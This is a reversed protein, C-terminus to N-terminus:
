SSRAGTATPGLRHAMAAAEGRSTVGLKGLINSVHVSATKRSIYLEEAIQPNSRGDALLQLVELERPTLGLADIGTAAPDVAPAGTDIQLRARRGLAHIEALLPEAGLATALRAAEQATGSASERDAGACAVEAQRLLAYAILYPDDATRCADLAETWSADRGGARAAEAAALARYALAPTTQAPLEHSIATLAAMRDPAPEPAEAELRLGLWVLQWRYRAVPEPADLPPRIEERAAAVDGLARAMEAGAFARPFAYQDSHPDPLLRRATELDARADHYRGTLAALRARQGLVLSAFLNALENDLTNSLLRHADDWQGVHFQADAYNLATLAGYVSRTLGVRAALEMGRRAVEAADHSRGLNQLADSLNLHGRLAMAHDEVAEALQLGAQLELVGRDDDGLYALAAGLMMRAAAERGPVGARHAAAVAPEAASRVGSFNGALLRQAALSTLVVARVEDPAEPPLQAAARELESRAEDDRGLDLLTAARAEILLAHREPDANAGLEALAEDFMALSADLAGAAYASVGARRLAEVLDIGSRAAADPVQPWIELANDLHRLAEAPAYGAALHAAEVCAVLARPLDHAATWHLALLAAVAVNGGALAPDASLAEGYAAHIRVRERPLTDSYVADRTLAHRFEYGHETEDIVLVHHEVAERLAEDLEPEEMAAVAALLRDSVARGGAAAIRLLRQTSPELSEVRALLVDRLALPLQAPDAGSQVAGLIEEVLFANGESREHVLDLLRTSPPTGLIAALQRAVEPRGLRALEIRHVTRVREWGTILPRLPHSRHLEDSRFSVVVLVRDARLARVLLAVLDLTSRDAWHLDEIVFMLPRDAALREIVGLVLERLRATGGEHLPPATLARERDLDPLVWALESRAPGLYADLEEPSTDRMLSRFAHALPGFPLGEGGMEVCSGTLVRVGAEGARAAAEEVLRTKGVGAEGGLILVAPEGAVAADLAATLTALEAERGVFVPSVLTPGM